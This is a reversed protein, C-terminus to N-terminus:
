NLHRIPKSVRTVAELEAALFAELDETTRTRAQEGVVARIFESPGSSRAGAFQGNFCSHRNQRGRFTVLEPYENTNM